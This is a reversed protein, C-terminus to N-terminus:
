LGQESLIQNFSKISGDPFCVLAGQGHANAIEVLWPQTSWRRAVGPTPDFMAPTYHLIPGEDNADRLMGRITPCQWTAPTVGYPALAAIWFDSWARLEEPSPAQPWVEGHDNLYHDMALRITRMHSKCIVGQAREILPRYNPVVFAVLILVLLVVALVEVITFAPPKKAHRM